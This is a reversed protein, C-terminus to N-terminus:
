LNPLSMNEAVTGGFNTYDFFSSTAARIPLGAPDIDPGRLLLRTATDITGNGVLIGSRAM